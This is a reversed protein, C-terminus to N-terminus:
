DFTKCIERKKKYTCQRWVSVGDEKYIIHLKRNGNAFKEEIQKKKARWDLWIVSTGHRKGNVYNNENAVLGNKDFSVAPGHWTGDLRECHWNRARSVSPHGKIKTGDPCDIDQIALVKGEPTTRKGQERASGPAPTVNVSERDRKNCGTLGLLGLLCFLTPFLACKMTM